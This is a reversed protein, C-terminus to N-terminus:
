AESGKILSDRLLAGAFLSIYVEALV